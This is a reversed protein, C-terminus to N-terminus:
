IGLDLTVPTGPALNLNHSSRAALQPPSSLALQSRLFGTLLDAASPPHPPTALARFRPRLAAGFAAEGKLPATRRRHPAGLPLRAGASLAWPGVGARPRAHGSACASPSASPGGSGRGVSAQERATGFACPPASRAMAAWRRSGPRPPSASWGPRGRAGAAAARAGRWQLGRRGIRSARAGRGM